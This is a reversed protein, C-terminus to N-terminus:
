CISIQKEHSKCDLFQGAQRGPLIAVRAIQHAKDRMMMGNGILLTITTKNVLFDGRQHTHCIKGKANDAAPHVAPAAHRLKKYGGNVRAPPGLVSLRISASYLSDCDPSAVQLPKSASTLGIGVGLETGSQSQSKM